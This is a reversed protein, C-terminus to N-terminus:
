SKDSGKPAILAVTPFYNRYRAADRTVLTLGEAEAHAGIYFDPLPSNKAGGARRYKVFAQAALWGATYPLPLRQFVAPDLWRDLDAPTAFAPALEAYIIPNILIPGLAVAAQFQGGVLQAVDSGCYRYRAAREHRVLPRENM